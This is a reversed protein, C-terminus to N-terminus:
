SSTVFRICKGEPSQFVITQMEVGRKENGKDDGDITVIKRSEREVGRASFFVEDDDDIEVDLGEGCRGVFGPRGAEREM